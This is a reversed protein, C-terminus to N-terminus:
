VRQEVPRVGWIGVPCVLGEGRLAVDGVQIQAKGLRQHSSDGDECVEEDEEEAPRAEEDESGPAAAGTDGARGRQEGREGGNGSGASRWQRERNRAQAGPVAAAPGAPLPGPLLVRGHAGCPRDRDNDRDNDRDLEVHRHRHRRLRPFRRPRESSCYRTHGCPPLVSTYLDGRMRLPKLPAALVGIEIGDWIGSKPHELPLLSFSSRICLATELDKM